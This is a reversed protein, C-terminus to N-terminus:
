RSLPYRQGRLPLANSDRWFLTMKLATLAQLVLPRPVLVTRGRAQVTPYYLPKWLVPAVRMVLATRAALPLPRPVLASAPAQLYVGPLYTIAKIPTAM